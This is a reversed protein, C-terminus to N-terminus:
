DEKRRKKEEKARKQLSRAWRELTPQFPKFLRGRFKSERESWLRLQTETYSRVLSELQNKRVSHRMTLHYHQGVLSIVTAALNGKFSLRQMLRKHFPLSEPLLATSALEIWARQPGQKPHYLGPLSSRLQVNLRPDVISDVIRIYEIGRTHDRPLSLFIGEITQITKRPLQRNTQNEIRISM